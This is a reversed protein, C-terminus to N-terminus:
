QTFNSKRQIDSHVIVTGKATITSNEVVKGKILLIETVRGM